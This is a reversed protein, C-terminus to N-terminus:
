EENKEFKVEILEYDRFGLGIEKAAELQLEWHKSPIGEVNLDINKTERNYRPIYSLWELDNEKPFNKIDRLISYPSIESLNVLDVCAQDVAVPDMSSLIGIDPILNIDSGGTCDCQWTIDIAYNIYFINKKGFFDVVGVANDVMQLIFEERTSEGIDIAKNKCVSQCMYCLQCKGDDRSIKGNEDESLANTPCIKLCVEYDSIPADLNFEFKKGTHAEVKGGKSVCGIGLNKIAGGFGASIHGKFHSALVMKDFERLRGAVAIENFIKGHTKQRQVDIGVPGDLMIIPAGMTKETYGHM